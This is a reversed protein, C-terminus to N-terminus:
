DAKIRYFYDGFKFMGGLAVAGTLALLAATALLAVIMLAGLPNHGIHRGETGDVIFGAPPMAQTGGKVVLRAAMPSHEPIPIIESLHDPAIRGLAHGQAQLDNLIAVTKRMNEFGKETKPPFLEFSFTKDTM